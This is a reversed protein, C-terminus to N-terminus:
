QKAASDCYICRYVKKERDALRFRHVLGQETSTICRPNKCRIVGSITEPLSLHLKEVQKGDRIIDVTIGPDVFGLVDFDLDMLKGIKIIDKLGMKESEANKIMAVSCDLEDLKLLNYIDMGRGATIHDLVYGDRLAGIIM